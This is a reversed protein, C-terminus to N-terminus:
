PRARRKVIPALLIALGLVQLTSLSRAPRAVEAEVGNGVVVTVVGTRQELDRADARIRELVRQPYRADLTLVLVDGRRARIRRALVSM